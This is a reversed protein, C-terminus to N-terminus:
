IRELTYFHSIHPNDQDIEQVLGDFVHGAIPQPTGDADRFIGSLWFKNPEGIVSKVSGNRNSIYGWYTKNEVDMVNKVYFGTTKDLKAGFNCHFLASRM